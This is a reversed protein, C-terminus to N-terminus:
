RHRDALRRAPLPEPRSLWKSGAAVWEAHHTQVEVPLESVARELASTRCEKKAKSGRVGSDFGGCVSSAASRLRSHLVALGAPRRLDLDDFRVTQREVMRGFDRDQGAAGAIGSTALLAAMLMIGTTKKM